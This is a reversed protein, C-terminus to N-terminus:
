ALLLLLKPYGPWHGKTSEFHYFLGRCSSRTSFPGFTFDTLNQGDFFHFFDWNRARLANRFLESCILDLLSLKWSLFFYICIRFALFIRIHARVAFKKWFIDGQTHFNHNFYFNFFNPANMDFNSTSFFNWARFFIEATSNEPRIKQTFFRFFIRGNFKKRAHFKSMFAGMSLLSPACESCILM